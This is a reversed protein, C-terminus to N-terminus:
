DDFTDHTPANRKPKRVPFVNDCGNNSNDSDNHHDGISLYFLYAIPVVVGCVVEWDM